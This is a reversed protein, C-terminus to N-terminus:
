RLSSYEQRSLEMALTAQSALTWPNCLTLCVQADIVSLHGQNRLSHLIQRCYPLGLNWGQTPFLGQFLPYSSMGTNKGPSDWPYLLRDPLLGHPRLSDSWVSSSFSQFTLFFCFLFSGGFGKESSQDCHAQGHKIWHLCYNDLFM